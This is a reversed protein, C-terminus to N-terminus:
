GTLDSWHKPLYNEVKLFQFLQKFKEFDIMSCGHKLLHWLAVFQVNKKRRWRGAMKYKILLM